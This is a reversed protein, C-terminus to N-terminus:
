PPAPAPLTMLPPSVSTKTTSRRSTPQCEGSCAAAGHELMAATRSPLPPPPHRCSPRRGRTRCRGVLAPLLDPEAEHQRAARREGDVHVAHGLFQQLEDSPGGGGQRPTSQARRGLAVPAEEAAVLL